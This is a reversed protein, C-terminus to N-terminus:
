HGKESQRMREEAAEVRRQANKMAAALEETIPEGGRILTEDEADVAPVFRAM